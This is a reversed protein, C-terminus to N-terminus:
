SCIKVRADKNVNVKQLLEGNKKSVWAQIPFIVVPVLIGVVGPYGLRMILIAAVGVFAFPFIM